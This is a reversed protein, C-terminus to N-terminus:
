TEDEPSGSALFQKLKRLARHHRALVTGIPQGLIEAIRKFELGGHHRLEIVDRDADPLENLAERLAALADPQDLRQEGAERAKGDAVRGFTLPDTPEAHRQLRRIEDRVRNITIRFLWSEFRGQESYGGADRLKIAVTAFVSQTIEEAVDPRLRRSRAMAFVRRGYLEVIRRWVEENGGAAEALLAPLDPEARDGPGSGTGVLRAQSSSSQPEPAPRSHEAKAM